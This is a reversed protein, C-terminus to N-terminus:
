AKCNKKKNLIVKEGRGEAIEEIDGAVCEVAEDMDTAEFFWLEKGCLLKFRMGAVISYEKAFFFKEAIILPGNHSVLAAM